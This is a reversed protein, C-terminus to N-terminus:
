YLAPCSSCCCCTPSASYSTSHRMTPTQLPGRLCHLCLLTVLGGGVAKCVQFAAVKMMNATICRVHPTCGQQLKKPAAQLGRGFAPTMTCVLCNTCLKCNTCHTASKGRSYTTFRSFVRCSPQRLKEPTTCCGHSESNISILMGSTTPCHQLLCVIVWM